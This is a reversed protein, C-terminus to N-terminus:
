EEYETLLVKKWTDSTDALYYTEFSYAGITDELPASLLTGSVNFSTERGETEYVRIILGKGDESRKLASVM